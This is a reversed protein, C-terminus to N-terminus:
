VTIEKLKQLPPRVLEQRDATSEQGAKKQFKAVALEAAKQWKALTKIEKFKYGDKLLVTLIKSQLGTVYAKITEKNNLVRGVLRLQWRKFEQNYERLQDLGGAKMKPQVPPPIKKKPAKHTKTLPVYGGGGGSPSTPEMTKKTLPKVTPLKPPDPDRKTDMHIPPDPPELKEEMYLDDPYEIEPEPNPTQPEILLDETIDEVPTQKFPSTPRSVPLPGEWLDPTNSPNDLQM